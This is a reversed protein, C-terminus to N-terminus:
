DSTATISLCFQIPAAQLLERVLPIGAMLAAIVESGLAM